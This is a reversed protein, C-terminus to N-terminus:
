VGVLIQFRVRSSGDAFKKSCTALCYCEKSVQQNIQNILLLMLKCYQGWETFKVLEKLDIQLLHISAVHINNANLKFNKEKCLNCAYEFIFKNSSVKM